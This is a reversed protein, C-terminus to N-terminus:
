AVVHHGLHDLVVSAPAVTAHTHAHPLAKVVEDRRPGPQEFWPGAIWLTDQKLHPGVNASTRHLKQQSCTGGDDRELRRGGIHVNTVRLRRLSAARLGTM